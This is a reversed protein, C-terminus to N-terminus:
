TGDGAIVKQYLVRRRAVHLGAREYVRVTASTTAADIGLELAPHGSRHFERFTHQLLALALSRQRYPRRVALNALWGAERFSYCLACGALAPGDSPESDFALYWYEPRFLGPDMLRMRWDDLSSPTYNPLDSFVETVLAHTIAEDQAPVFARVTIGEPWEPAPPAEDLERRMTWGTSQLSFGAREFIQQAGQDAASCPAYLRVATGAPLRRRYAAVRALMQAFLRSGLGRGRHDPHVHADLIFRQEAGPQRERPWVEAYGALAGGPTLAMWADAAMSFGPRSWNAQQEEPSHDVVGDDALTCATIMGAIVAADARTPARLTYGATVPLEPALASM